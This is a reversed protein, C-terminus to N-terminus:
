EYRLAEIPDLKAAKNAPYIGFFVGVGASFLWAILITGLSVSPPIKIFWAIAFSFGIGLITGLIGGISAVIVAEVLFQMLIDKHKAGLAKRIGIERTRETVSVLMINMVGIGGVVLSIAAIAGIVTTLIGLVSNVTELQQEASFAIYKNQGVNDHRRELLRTVNEIFAKEDAEMYLNIEIGNVRDGMGNLKELFTYPVHVTKPMEFGPINTFATKPAEYVGVVIYSVTSRSTISLREGVADTRGFVSTATGSDIVAVARKSRVDSEVLFRGHLLNIEEIQNYIENVGNLSVSIPDQNRKGQIRGNGSVSISIAKIDESFSRAIAEVDAHNMRDNPSIEERFSTTVFIRNVGFSEFEQGIVAESGSGLAVVAIVSSIGIIIGLMTLLSRMKNVWIADIAIKVSELFNM